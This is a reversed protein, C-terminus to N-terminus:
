KIRAEITEQLIDLSEALMTNEKLSTHRKIIVRM